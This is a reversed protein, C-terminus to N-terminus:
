DWRGRGRSLSFRGAGLLAVVVAGTFYLMQLELAWGGTRGIRWLDPLHVLWVAMAMNIALIVAAPRTLWGLVILVPAVVEGLYVGYAVFTPLGRATVMTVIPGVGHLVKHVGHFLMLGGVTVRLLLKGVDELREHRAM